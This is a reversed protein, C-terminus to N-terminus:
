LKLFRRLTSQRQPPKRGSGNTAHLPSNAKSKPSSNLISKGEEEADIDENRGLENAQQQQQQKTDM